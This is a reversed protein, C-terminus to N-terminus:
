REYLTVGRRITKLIQIKPIEEVPTTLPDRDLLIVDEYKGPALSGKQAEEFYQYAANKTLACLADGVGIQEDTGLEAGGRTKRATACWVTEFMDPAIVPADQHLTFLVGAKQASRLPSIKAAREWGFNSIHTDGFHYVHAVFFSPIVSLKKIQKLQDTGLMQAHIM